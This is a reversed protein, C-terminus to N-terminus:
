KNKKILKIFDELNRIYDSDKYFDSAAVCYISEESLNIQYSWTKEPLYLGKNPQNLIFNSKNGLVSINFVEIEGKLCWIYQKLTKHAHDGRRSGVPNNYIYFIRKMEFPLINSSDIISLDGCSTPFTPAFFVKPEENM